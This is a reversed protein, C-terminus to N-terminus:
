ERSVTPIKPFNEIERTKETLLVDMQDFCSGSQLLKCMVICFVSYNGTKVSFYCLPQLVYMQLLFEELSLPAELRFWDM